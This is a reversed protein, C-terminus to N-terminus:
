LAPISHARYFMRLCKEFFCRKIRSLFRKVVILTVEEGSILMGVGLGVFLSHVVWVGKEEGVEGM